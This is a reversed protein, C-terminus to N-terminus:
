NPYEIAVANSLVNTNSFDPLQYYRLFVCCCTYVATTLKMLATKSTHLIWRFKQTRTSLIKASGDPRRQKVAQCQVKNNACPLLRSPPARKAGGVYM